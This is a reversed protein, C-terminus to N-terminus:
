IAFKSLMLFSFLKFWWSPVIEILPSFLPIPKSTSLLCRPIVWLQISYMLVSNYLSISQIVPKKGALEPWDPKVNCNFYNNWNNHRWVQNALIHRNLEPLRWVTKYLQTSYCLTHSQPVSYSEALGIIGVVLVIWSLAGTSIKEIFALKKVFDSIQGSTLIM